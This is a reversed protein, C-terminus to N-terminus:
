AAETLPALRGEIDCASELLMPTAEAIARHVISDAPYRHLIDALRDAVSSQEGNASTTLDGM